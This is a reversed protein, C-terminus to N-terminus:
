LNGVEATVNTFADCAADKAPSLVGQLSNQQLLAEPVIVKTIIIYIIIYVKRTIHLNEYGNRLM